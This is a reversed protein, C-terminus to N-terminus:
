QGQGWSTGGGRGRGGGRGQGRGGGKTGDELQVSWLGWQDKTMWAEAGARGQGAAM